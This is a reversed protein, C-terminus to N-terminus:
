GTAPNVLEAIPTLGARVGDGPQVLVRASSPVRLTVQSGFKIIGLREGQDLRDGVGAWAVIRRAVMGSIQTVTCPGMDTELYTAVQHNGHTAGRTMAPRYGGARRRQEVIEGALPSRQVHVDWIALFIAIEVMEQEWYEDWRTEVHIVRGDAPALAIGPAVPVAREPDRFALAVGGAALLAVPAAPPFFRLSAVGAVVLPVILPAGESLPRCRPERLAAALRAPGGSVASLRSPREATDRTPHEM